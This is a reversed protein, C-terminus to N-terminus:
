RRFYLVLATVVLLALALNRWFPSKPPCNIETNVAVPVEIKVTDADCEVNFRITDHKLRYQIKIRDQYVTVLSDKLRTVPVFVTTSDGPVIVTKEQYVTDSKIIAGKKVAQRVHWAGSCGGLLFALLVWKYGRPQIWISSTTM